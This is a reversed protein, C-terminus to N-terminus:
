LFNANEDALFENYEFNAEECEVRWDILKIELKKIFVEERM